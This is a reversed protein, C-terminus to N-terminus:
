KFLHYEVCTQLSVMQINIRYNNFPRFLKKAPKYSDLFSVLKTIFNRTNIFVTLNKVACM